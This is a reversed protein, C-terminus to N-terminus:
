DQTRSPFLFRRTRKLRNTARSLPTCIIKPGKISQNGGKVKWRSRSSVLSFENRREGQGECSIAMALITHYIAYLRYTPPPASYQAITMCSYQMPTPKATSSGIYFSSPSGCFAKFHFLIKYVSKKEEWRSRSSDSNFECPFHVLPHTWTPRPANVICSTELM